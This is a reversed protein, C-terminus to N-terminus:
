SQENINSFNLPITRKQEFKLWTVYVTPKWIALRKPKYLAGRNEDNQENTIRIGIQLSSIMESLQDYLETLKRDAM